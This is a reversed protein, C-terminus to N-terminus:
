FLKVKLQGRLRKKSLIKLTWMNKSVDMSNNEM